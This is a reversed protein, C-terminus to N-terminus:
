DPRRLPLRITFTSGRGEDSDVAITGDHAEVIAKTITLGLGTGQIVKRRANATRYFREFIQKRDAAPIGIGTDAVTLVAQGHEAGVRVNVRGGDPTFKVANSLLNDLLQAIRTPDIALPPVDAASLTLDIHKREAEPRMEEVAAAAVGALDARRLEVALKGSQVESLFLLDGVLHL